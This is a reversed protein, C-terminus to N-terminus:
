QRKRRRVGFGVVGLGTAMLVISAPEPTVTPEPAGGEEFHNVFNWSTINHQGWGAGTGATFGVYVNPSGLISALNLGSKSLMAAAPRTSNTAWRVDMQQTAGDYDVWAWWMAGNDFDTPLFPTSAVSTMNGNVDIGVHNSGGFEGNNYTDFEVAVSNNLGAYGIGGGYGGVNNGNTQVTFTLGDAGNDLGGRGLIEFSFVTSFSANAALPVTTTSFASGGQYATAPTLSLKSGNQYANGNIQLGATNSFNPYSITQASASSAASLLALTILSKKM